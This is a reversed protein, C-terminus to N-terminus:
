TRDYIKTTQPVERKILDGPNPLDQSFWVLLLVLTLSGALAGFVFLHLVARFLSRFTLRKPKRPSVVRRLFSFARLQRGHHDRHAGGLPHKEFAM